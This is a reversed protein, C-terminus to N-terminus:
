SIAKCAVEYGNQQLCRQLSPIDLRHDGFENIPVGNDHAYMGTLCCARSPSCLSTTVFANKFVAGENGIRDINPTKLFPFENELSIADWKQDDTMIFVFNPKEVSKQRQGIAHAIRSVGSVAIGVGAVKRLFARRNM